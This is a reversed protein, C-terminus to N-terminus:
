LFYLVIIISIPITLNDLGRITFAEAMTAILPIIMLFMLKNDPLFLASVLLAVIFFALSGTLSKQEDWTKYMVYPFHKGVIAATPDALAMTIIPIYFYFIDNGAGSNKLYYFLFTLSVVIPYSLTGYSKRQISNISPLLNFKLSISLLVFFIGCIGFVWAYHTFMVPFLMTLLGTGIHVLKRTYEVRTKTNRHILEATLFLVFFLCSLILINIINKDM